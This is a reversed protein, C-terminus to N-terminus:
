AARQPRTIWLDEVHRQEVGIGAEMMFERGQM